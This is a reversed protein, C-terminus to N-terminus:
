ELVDRDRYAIMLFVPVGILALLVGLPLELPAVLSRAFADAALVVSAGLLAAVPLFWRADSGVFRRAVHPMILGVFGVMGSLSVAGATLLSAAAVISWQARSPHVGLAHARAEGLRLANLTPALVFAFIGGAFIYVSAFSLEPWGRGALSGGLWSLISLQASTSPAVTIVLTVMAAFLASLSVGALILRDVSIGRGNRALALTLLATAMAAVFATMPLWTIDVGLTIAVAIACASGASSGTLYPEVLPNRLLGQLLAGALALAAGVLMASALRPVRLEIFARATTDHRQGALIAWIDHPSFNLAGTSAGLLLACLLM